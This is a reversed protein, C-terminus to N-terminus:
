ANKVCFSSAHIAFHRMDGRWAGQVRVGGETGGGGKRQGEREGGEHRRGIKQRWGGERVEWGGEGREM